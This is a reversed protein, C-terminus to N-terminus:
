TRRPGTARPATPSSAPGRRPSRSCSASGAHPCRPHVVLANAGVAARTIPSFSRVPDYALKEYLSVNVTFAPQALLLTYGDPPSKAAVEFGINSGAGPRNDVIVRQNWSAGLQQAIIRAILDTAGGAAVPVVIRVPKSPYNPDPDSQAGAWPACAAVVIGAICV